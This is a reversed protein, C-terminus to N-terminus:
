HVEEIYVLDSTYKGPLKLSLGANMLDAGSYIADGTSHDEARIKYKANQVLGRLM